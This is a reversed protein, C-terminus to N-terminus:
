DKKLDLDKIIKESRKGFAKLRLGRETEGLYTIHIELRDKPLLKEIRDAWEIVIVANGEELAEEIGIDEVEEDSEIRYFDFHNLKFDKGKHKRWYVFTPSIVDESEIGLAQAFFKVFYTKGVGLDGILCIVEGGKVKAAIKEALESTKGLSDITLSIEKM